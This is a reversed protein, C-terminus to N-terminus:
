EQGALIATSSATPSNRSSVKQPTQDVEEATPEMRMWQSVEQDNTTHGNTRSAIRRGCGQCYVCKWFLTATKIMLSGVFAESIFLANPYKDEMAARM